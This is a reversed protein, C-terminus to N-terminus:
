KFLYHEALSIGGGLCSAMIALWRVMSQLRAHMDTKFDELVRIRRQADDLGAQLELRREKLVRIEQELKLIREPDTMRYPSSDDDRPM